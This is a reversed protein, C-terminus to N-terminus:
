IKLNRERVVKSWKETENALFRKFDAQTRVASSVELGFKPFQGQVETDDLVARLDQFIKQQLEVPTSAPLVFGFWSGTEFGPYGAEAFTPVDPIREMRQAGAVALPRLKGSEVHSWAQMTDFIGSVQGGLVNVMAPGTGQFPVHTISAGTRMALLECALHPITMNGSSALTAKGPNQKAYDIFEKVTKVPLGTHVFLIATTTGCLIVPELAKPDYGLNELMLPNTVYPVATLFLTHGDGPSTAVQRTAVATGGGPRNTVIVTTKWREGLKTALLRALADTIGGPAFPVIMNVQKSPFTQAFASSLPASALATLVSRRTLKLIEFTM